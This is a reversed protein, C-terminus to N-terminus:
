AQEQNVTFMGYLCLAGSLDVWCPCESGWGWFGDWRFVTLGVPEGRGRSQAFALVQTSGSWVLWPLVWLLVGIICGLLYVSRITHHM